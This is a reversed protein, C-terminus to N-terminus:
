SAENESPTFSPSMGDAGVTPRFTFRIRVADALKKGLQILWLKLARGRVHQSVGLSAVREQKAM